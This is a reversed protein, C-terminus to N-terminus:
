LKGFIDIRNGNPDNMVFARCGWPQDAPMEQIVAGLEKARESTKDLDSSSFM